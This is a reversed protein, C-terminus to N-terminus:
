LAPEAGLGHASKSPMIDRLSIRWWRGLVLIAVDWIGAIGGIRCDEHYFISVFTRQASGGITEKKVWRLSEAIGQNCEVFVMERVLGRGPGRACRLCAALLSLVSADSSGQSGSVGVAARVLEAAQQASQLRLLCRPQGAVVLLRHHHRAVLIPVVVWSLGQERRVPRHNFMDCVSIERLTSAVYRILCPQRRTLTIM